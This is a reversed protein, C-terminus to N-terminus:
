MKYQVTNYLTQILNYWKEDNCLIVHSPSDRLLQYPIPPWSGKYFHVSLSLVISGERYGASLLLNLAGLQWKQIVLRYLVPHQTTNYQHIHYLIQVTLTRPGLVLPTSYIWINWHIARIFFPNPYKLRHMLILYCRLIHKGPKGKEM